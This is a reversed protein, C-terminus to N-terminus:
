PHVPHNPLPVAATRENKWICQVSTFTKSNFNIIDQMLLGLHLSIFETVSSQRVKMESREMVAGPIVLRLFFLAM